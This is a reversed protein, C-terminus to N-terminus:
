DAPWLALAGPGDGTVSVAPVGYTLSAGDAGSCPIRYLRSRSFFSLCVSDTLPDYLLGSFFDSAPDSGALILGGAGSGSDHYVTFDGAAQGYGYSQLGGVGALYVVKRATDAGNRFAAPSGGPFLTTLYVPNGPDSIDLILVLGDDPDTGPVTDGVSYGAPIYQEATFTRATGGNTGTCIVHLREGARDLWLSQPNLGDGPFYADAIGAGTRYLTELNIERELTVAVPLFSTAAEADAQDFSFVSLTGERFYGGARVQDGDGDTVPVGNGDALLITSDYRVNSVYLWATGGAGSFVAGGSPNRNQNDGTANDALPSTQEEPNTLGGVERFVSVFPSIKQMEALNVLVADDSRYGTVFALDTGELPVLSLPNMGNKLYLSDQFDLTTGDYRELSNQGSNLVWIDGSSTLLDSPVAESGAAHGVTQLNNYIKGTGTDLASITEGEGNLILLARDPSAERYAQYDTPIEPRCSLLLGAALFLMPPVGAIGSRRTGGGWSNGGDPRVQNKRM